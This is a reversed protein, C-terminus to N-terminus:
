FGGSGAQMILGNGLKLEKYTSDFANTNYIDAATNFRKLEKYTSDFPHYFSLLVM